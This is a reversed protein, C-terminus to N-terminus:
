QVTGPSCNAFTTLTVAGETTNTAVVIWSNGPRGPFGLQQSNGIPLSVIFEGAESRISWGGSVAIQGEPCTAFAEGTAGPEITVRESFATTM